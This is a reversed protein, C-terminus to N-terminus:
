PAACSCHYKYLLCSCLLSPAPFPFNRLLYSEHSSNFALSILLQDSKTAPPGNFGSESDDAAFFRSLHSCICFICSSILSMVFFLGLFPFSLRQM